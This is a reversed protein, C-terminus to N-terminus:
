SNKRNNIDCNYERARSKSSNETFFPSNKGSTVFKRERVKIKLILPYFKEAPIRFNLTLFDNLSKNSILVCMNKIYTSFLFCHTINSHLNSPNKKFKSM